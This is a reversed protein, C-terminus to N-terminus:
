KLETARKPHWSVLVEISGAVSEGEFAYVPEVFRKETMQMLEALKIQTKGIIEELPGIQSKGKDDRPRGAMSRKDDFVVLELSGGQIYEVFSQNVNVDFSFSDDFEPDTGGMTKTTHWFKYFSYYVFPALVRSAEKARLRECKVVKVIYTRVESPPIAPVAGSRTTPRYEARAKYEKLEQVLDNRVRMKYRLQGIVKRESAPDAPIGLVNAGKAVVAPVGPVSTLIRDVLERLPITAKGINKPVGERSYLCAVEIEGEHMHKLFADDVDVQFSIQLAYKPALGPKVVSYKVDHNYFAVEVLTNLQSVEAESLNTVEELLKDSYVCDIILLDLINSKPPLESVHSEVSFETLADIEGGQPALLSRHLLGEGPQGTAPKNNAMPIDIKRELENLRSELAEGAEDVKGKAERLTQAKQLDAALLGRELKLREVEHLLFQPDNPDAKPRQPLFNVRAWQPISGEATLTKMIEAFEESNKAALLRGAQDGSFGMRFQEVEARARKIQEKTEEIEKGTQTNDYDTKGTDEVLNEHEKQLDQLEKEAEQLKKVYNMQGEADKVFPSMALETVQSQLRHVQESLDQAEKQLEKAQNASFETEVQRTQLKLVEMRREQLETMAKELMEKNTKYTIERDKLTMELDSYGQEMQQVKFAKDSFVGGNGLVSKGPSRGRFLQTQMEKIQSTLKDIIRDKSDM